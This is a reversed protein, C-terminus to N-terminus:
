TSWRSSARRRPTPTRRSRSSCTPRPSRGGRSSGASSRRASRTSAGTRRHGHGRRLERRRRAPVLVAGPERERQGAGPPRGRDRGRDGSRDDSTWGFSAVPLRVRRRRSGPAGPPRSSASCPPWDTFRRRGISTASPCGGQARAAGRRRTWGVGRMPSLDVVLGATALALGAINHGGGRVSLPARPDRALRVAAVVDSVGICRAILGPRRDIMANWIARPEDYGPDSAALVPGRLGARLGQVLTPDLSTM